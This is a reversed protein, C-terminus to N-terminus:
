KGYKDLINLAKKRIVRNWFFRSKSLRLLYKKAEKFTVEEILELNEKIIRSRLGLPNSISLLLSFAKERLQSNKALILLAHKRQLFYGKKLLSFLFAEDQLPLKQMVKLVEIKVFDNSLSFIHKLIELALPPEVKELGKIIEKMFKIHSVKKNLHEYFLHREEPFFKFFLWLIHPNIKDEKFIKNLYFNVDKTSIKLINAFYGFDFPTDKTFIVNEVFQSINKTAEVFFSNLFPSDKNKKEFVEIFKKVFERDNNKVVDDLTLLIKDWILRLHKPNSEFIFLDLLILRYNDNLHKRDFSLGEGLSIGGLISSLNRRYIDSVHFDPPLSFLEKIKEVVKPNNKLGEERKLKQALFPAIENHKERNILQSFLNFNLADITKIDKLQELVIDSLHEADLDNFFLKLKNIDIESPLQKIRLILGAFSKACKFFRFKNKDKLYTFFKNIIEEIEQSDLSGKIKVEGIVKEFHDALSRIQVDDQEKISKRLLYFWIDKYDAGETKLLESYDLDEVTIHFINEKGLINKLGGKMLIDKSSLNVQTLFNNLEDVRVGKKIEISKIKRRHFFNAIEQYLKEGQLSKDGFTLSHPAVEIKLFSVLSFLRDINKKLNEVSQVFIPHEKFYISANTLAIRLSKLFEDYIKNKDM